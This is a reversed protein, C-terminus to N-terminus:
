GVMSFLGADPSHCQQQLEGAGCVFGCYMLQLAHLYIFQYCYNSLTSLKLKPAMLSSNSIAMLCIIALKNTLPFKKFTRIRLMNICQSLQHSQSFATTTASSLLCNALRIICVRPSTILKFHLCLNIMKRSVM